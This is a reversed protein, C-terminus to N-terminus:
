QKTVVEPASVPASVSASVFKHTAPNYNGQYYLSTGDVPGANANKISYPIARVSYIDDEIKHKLADFLGKRAKSLLLKVYFSEGYQWCPLLPQNQISEATSNMSQIVQCENLIKSYNAQDVVLIIQKKIDDSKVVKGKFSFM